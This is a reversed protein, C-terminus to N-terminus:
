RAGGPPPLAAAGAGGRPVKDLWDLVSAALRRADAQLLAAGGLALLDVASPNSSSSSSGSANSSPLEGGCPTVHSGPLTSVSVGAANVRRLLAAMTPTEDITDNEFRVLLTRPVSYGREILARSEEPSPVFEVGGEGGGGAGAAAAAADEASASPGAMEFAVSGLQDIAPAADALAARAAEPVRVGAAALAGLAGDFLSKSSLSPLPSSVASGSANGLAAAAASSFDLAARAGRQLAGRSVPVADGVPRNNFAMLVNSARNDNAGSLSLSCSLLHLLSGMSHGVGHVPLPRGTVEDRVAWSYLGVGNDSGGSLEKVAAQFSASVKAAAEAHRFSVAFPTAIVTYGGDALLSLLLGYGLAPSAGAFAGGVFHVVGKSPRSRPPPM